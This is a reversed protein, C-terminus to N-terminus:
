DDGGAIFPNFKLTAGCKPCNGHLGPDEWSEDPLKLCPSDNNRIISRKLLNLIANVVNATPYFVESCLPCRAIYDQQESNLLKRTKLITVIALGECIFAKEVSLIRINGSEEGLIIGSKFLSVTNLKSDSTFVSRLCRTNLDWVKCTKDWSVSIAKEGDPTFTVDTVPGDHGDFRSLVKRSRLDWLIMTKDDSSSIAKKGDPSVAIKLITKSHGSINTFKKEELEWIRFDISNFDSVIAKGDPLYAITRIDDFRYPSGENHLNCEQRSELDWIYLSRCISYILEEGTPSLAIASHYKRKFGSIIDTKVIENLNKHICIQVQELLSDEVVSVALLGDPAIKMSMVGYFEDDSYQKAPNGSELDWNFSTGFFGSVIAHKNDPFVCVNCIKGNGSLNSEKAKSHKQMLDEDNVFGERLNWLTISSNASWSVAKSGDPTLALLKIKASNEGLNKIIRSNEVDWYFPPVLAKKGDASIGMPSDINGIPAALLGVEEGKTIDWVSLANGTTRFMARNGDPTIFIDECKYSKEDPRKIINGSEVDWIICSKDASGSIATKGDASIKASMVKETHGAFSKLQIGQEIDWIIITNDMGGSIAKRGDPTIHVCLVGRTHGKLVKLPKLKLMDWIICKTSRSTSIARKWDPTFSIIDIQYNNPDNWELLEGNELNWFFNRLGYAFFARDGKPSIELAQYNLPFGNLSKTSSPLPNWNPRNHKLIRLLSKFVLEKQNEASKVVPGSDAWNWAQQTSFHPLVNAYHQLNGAEKGLFNNFDRLADFKTPNTRIRDIEDKIKEQSCPVISSPIELYSIPKEGKACAILNLTYREMRAKLAKEQRINETNDPIKDLVENFDKVLDYTMKACAKAQIFELDCLTNTVEDWMEAKTQQFPLEMCKRIHPKNQLDGDFFHPYSSYYFALILHYKSKISTV